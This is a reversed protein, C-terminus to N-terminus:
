RPPPTCAAHVASGRDTSVEGCPGLGQAVCDPLAFAAGRACGTLGADTCSETCRAPVVACPSTWDFQPVMAGATCGADSRLISACDIKELV